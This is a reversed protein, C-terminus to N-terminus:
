SLLLKYKRAFYDSHNGNVRLEITEQHSPDYAVYLVDNLNEPNPKYKVLLCPRSIVLSPKPTDPNARIDFIIDDQSINIKQVGM